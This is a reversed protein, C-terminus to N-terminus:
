THNPFQLRVIRGLTPSFDEDEKLRQRLKEYRHAVLGNNDKLEKSARLLAKKNWVARVTSDPYFDFFCLKTFVGPIAKRVVVKVEHPQATLNVAGSRTRVLSAYVPWITSGLDQSPVDNDADLLAKSECPPVDKYATNVRQSPVQMM